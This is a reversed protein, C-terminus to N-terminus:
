NNIASFTLIHYSCVLPVWPSVYMTDNIDKGYKLTYMYMYNMYMYTDTFSFILYM